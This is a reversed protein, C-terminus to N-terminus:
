PHPDTKIFKLRKRLRVDISTLLKKQMRANRANRTCHEYLKKFKSCLRVRLGVTFTVDNAINCLHQYLKQRQHQTLPM